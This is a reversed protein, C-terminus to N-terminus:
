LFVPSKTFAGPLFIILFPLIILAERTELKFSSTCLIDSFIHIIPAPYGTCVYIQISYTLNDLYKITNDYRIGCVTFLKHFSMCIVTNFLYLHLYIVYIHM